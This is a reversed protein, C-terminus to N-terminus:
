RCLGCLVGGKQGACSLSYFWPLDTALFALIGVVFWAFCGLGFLGNCLFAAVFCWLYGFRRLVLREKVVVDSDFTSVLDFRKGVCPSM